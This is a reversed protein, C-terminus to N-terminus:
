SQQDFLHILLTLTLPKPHWVWGLLSINDWEEEEYLIHAESQLTGNYPCIHELHGMGCIQEYKIPIFLPFNRNQNWGEDNFQFLIDNMGPSFDLNQKIASREVQILMRWALTLWCGMLRCVTDTYASFVHVCDAYIHVTARLERTKHTLGLGSSTKVDCIIWSRIM